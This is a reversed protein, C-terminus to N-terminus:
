ISLTKKFNEVTRPREAVKYKLVVNFFINLPEDGVNFTIQEQSFCNSIELQSNGFPLKGTFLFYAIIGLCFFDTRYSILDKKAFLQEPSAFPWSNPQFGIPTITGDGLDRAIGFDIVVPTGDDKIRINQPKLDRHVYDGEWVPELIEAILFILKRIKVSDGIYEGLVQSLDKGEIYEELIILEHGYRQVDLICPIGENLKFVEYIKLEREIREDIASIIKLAIKIGEKKVIHVRKQGSTPKNDLIESINFHKLFEPSLITTTPM